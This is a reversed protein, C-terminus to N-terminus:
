VVSKRDPKAVRLAEAFIPEMASQFSRMEGVTPSSSHSNGYRPAGANAASYAEAKGRRVEESDNGFKRGFSDWKAGMFALGYPPDTVIADVSNEPMARMADLCDSQIVSGKM